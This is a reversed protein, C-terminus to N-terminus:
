EVIVKGDCQFHIFQFNNKVPFSELHEILESFTIEMFKDKKQATVTIFISFFILKIVLPFSCLLRVFYLFFGKEAEGGYGTM